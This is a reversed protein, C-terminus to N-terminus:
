QVALDTFYIQKVKVDTEHAIGRLIETQLQRRGAVTLLVKSSDDTVDSTIISRIIPEQALSGFGAPTTTDASASTAGTSQGPALLLAVTLTAYRGDTLNLTFQKPLVYITGTVKPKAEAKKPLLFMKAGVAAVVLLLVLPILVKKSKM